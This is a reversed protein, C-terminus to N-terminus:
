RLVELAPVSIRGPRSSRPISAPQPQHREFLPEGCVPPGSTGARRGGGDRRGQLQVVHAVVRQVPPHSSCMFDLTFGLSPEKAPAIASTAENANTLACCFLPVATAISASSM